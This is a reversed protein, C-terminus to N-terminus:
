NKLFNFEFICLDQQKFQFQLCVSHTKKFKKQRSVSIGELPLDIQNDSLFVKKMM